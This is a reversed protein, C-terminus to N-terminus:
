RDYRHGRDRRESGGRWGRMDDGRGRGSNAGPQRQRWTRGDTAQDRQGRWQRGSWGGSTGDPRWPRTTAGRWNGSQARRGDWYRRHDDNWRHRHGGRDYLWYGSGPYYYGDYWGYPAVAGYGVSVRSYGYGYGDDYCGGLALASAFVLSAVIQKTFM